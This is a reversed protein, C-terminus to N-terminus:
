SSKFPAYIHVHSLLSVGAWIRSESINLEHGLPKLRLVMGVSSRVTSIIQIKEAIIEISKIIKSIFLETHMQLLYPCYKFLMAMGAYDHRYCCISPCPFVHWHYCQKSCLFSSSIKHSYSLPLFHASAPCM